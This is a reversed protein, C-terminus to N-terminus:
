SRAKQYFARFSPAAEAHNYPEPRLPMRESIGLQNSNANALFSEGYRFSAKTDEVSIIGALERGSPQDRHVEIEM